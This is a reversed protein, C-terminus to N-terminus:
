SLSIVGDRARLAPFRGTLEEWLSTGAGEAAAELGQLEERYGRLRRRSIRAIDEIGMYRYGEGPVGQPPSGMDVVWTGSGALDEEFLVPLPSSTCLFVGQFDRARSRLSEWPICRFGEPPASSRSTCVVEAGFYSLVKCTERGMEGMGAVLCPVRPWDPHEKIISSALYPISPARGPHLTSRLRSSIGFARQFLRHLIPGCSPRSAEYCDKVQRVIHFEGVAFSNLGLMTRILRLVVGEQRALVVGGPLGGLSHERLVGYFEDRWCTKVRVWELADPPLSRTVAM